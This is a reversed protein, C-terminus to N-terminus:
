EEPEGGTLQPVHQVTAQADIPHDHTLGTAFDHNKLGHIKWDTTIENHLTSKRLEEQDFKKLVTLVASADKKGPTKIEETVIEVCGEGDKDRSVRCTRKYSEILHGYRKGGTEHLDDLVRKAGVCLAQEWFAVVHKREVISNEMLATASELEERVQEYREAAEQMRKFQPSSRLGEMFRIAAESRLARSAHGFDDNSPAREPHASRWCDVQSRKGNANVFLQLFLMVSPSLQRKGRPM